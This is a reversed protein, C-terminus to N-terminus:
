VRKKNKPIPAKARKSVPARKSAPAQRNARHSRDARGYQEDEYRAVMQKEQDKRGTVQIGLVDAEALVADEDKPDYVYVEVVQGPYVQGWFQEDNVDFPGQPKARDEYAEEDEYLFAALSFVGQDVAKRSVRSHQFFADLVEERYDAGGNRRAKQNKQGKRSKRPTEAIGAHIEAAKKGERISTYTGIRKSTKGQGQTTDVYVKEHGEPAWVLYDVDAMVRWFEQGPSYPDESPREEWEADTHSGFVEKLKDSEDKIAARVGRTREEIETEIAAKGRRAQSKAEAEARHTLRASREAVLGATFAGAVLLTASFPDISIKTSRRKAV